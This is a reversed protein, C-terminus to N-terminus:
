FCKDWDGNGDGRAYSQSEVFDKLLCLGDEGAGCFTLPQLADNVLIRVYEKGVRGVRLDDDCELKEVIMRGSFPTLKSIRWRRGPNMVESSPEREDGQQFLGMASYIAVMQNDHSFDAYFTRNLPFTDPSSDLTSNTQTDDRVPQSTLRALLENVYGVGQVPGFPNGPGTKYFKSLDNYYEHAEYEDFTFLDCFPSTKGHFLTEFACLPMIQVVDKSKLNAGPAAANLRDAIPPAFIDRWANREKKITHANPCSGDELTNNTGAVEPIIVSTQPHYVDKSAFAIGDSWIMASKIVRDSGSARVFPIQDSSFLHQYRNFHEVGSEFTQRKGFSIMDNTGLDWEFDRLFNLSGNAYINVNLLKQLSSQM